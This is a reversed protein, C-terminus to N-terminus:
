KVKDRIIQSFNDGHKVKQALPTIYAKRRTEAFSELNNIYNEKYLYRDSFGNIIIRIDLGGVRGIRNAYKSINITCNNSLLHYFEPIKDLENIRDLYVKFLAQATNPSIDLRYRYVDEKRYNTRLKVIDDESGVIYILEYQKFLSPLPNFSENEECKAEISICVPDGNDFNFSLFTHAVSDMKWYSIFFDVSTLHSLQVIRDEYNIIFDGSTNYKFNRYNVLTINDNNIIATPMRKMDSRWIKNHSPKITLWYGYFSGFAVIWSLLIIKKNNSKNIFIAYFGFIFFSISLIVRLFSFPIECFYVAFTGWLLCLTGIFYLCLSCIKKIFM